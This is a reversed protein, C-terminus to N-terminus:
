RPSIKNVTPFIERAFLARSIVFFLFNTLRLLIGHTDRKVALTGVWKVLL